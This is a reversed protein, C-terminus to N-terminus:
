KKVAIRCLTVPVPIGDGFSPLTVQKMPVLTLWDRNKEYYQM